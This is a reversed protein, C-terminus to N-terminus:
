AARIQELFDQVSRQLSTSQKSLEGASSLVQTAAAGTESAARTVSAITGSVQETGKAAEQTNRAIERTAAGQEDVASAIATSIESIQAITAGISQIASVAHGTVERISAIQGAIDETAKATQNALSKVESAVVAFGKGAEGARAAEITANLALLNTQSAIDQILQVVKGIKQAADALTNVTGNTRKADEVARGAISAAQTVQRSIEAISSSMEESSAAVTQVNAATQESASAVTSARRQTEEATAAMSEATARMENSASALTGIAERASRDFSAIHAAVIPLRQETRKQEAQQEAALRDAEIMSQKFVEVAKAMDGIEDKSDRAPIEVAKDGGALKRMAATMGSVPVVISRGILYAFGLGILVGVVAIALQLTTTRSVTDDTQRQAAALDADLTQQAAGGNAEVKDSTPRMQKDFLEEGQLLAEAAQAFSAVCAGLSAKVSAVLQNLGGTL